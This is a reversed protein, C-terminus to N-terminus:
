GSRVRDHQNSIVYRIYTEADFNSYQDLPDIHSAASMYDIAQHNGYPLPSPLYALPDFGDMASTM